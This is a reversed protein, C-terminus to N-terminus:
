WSIALQQKEYGRKFRRPGRAGQAGTVHTQNRFVRRLPLLLRAMALVANGSAMAVLFATAQKLLRQDNRCVNICLKRSQGTSLTPALVKQVPSRLTACAGPVSGPAGTPITGGQERADLIRARVSSLKMCHVRRAGHIIFGALHHLDAAHCGAVWSHRKKISCHLMLFLCAGAAHKGGAGLDPSIYLATNDGHM